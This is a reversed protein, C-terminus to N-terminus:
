DLDTFLYYSGDSYAGFANAGVRAQWDEKSFNEYTLVKVGANSALCLGDPSAFMVGGEVSAITRKAVCSQPADIEQASMSASDAGSAYYPSGETLVVVTQGFVGLGVLNHKVTQQYEVPWAYPAYPESFCLTKGFFGAM